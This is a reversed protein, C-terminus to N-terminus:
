MPWEKKNKATLTRQLGFRSQFLLIHYVTSLCSDAEPDTPASLPEDRFGRETVFLGEGRKVPLAPDMETKM